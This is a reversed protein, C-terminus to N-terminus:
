APPEGCRIETVGDVQDVYFFDGERVECPFVWVPVEVSEYTGETNRLEVTASNGQIQDVVGLLGVCLLCKRFEFM